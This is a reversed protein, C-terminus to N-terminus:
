HRKTFSLKQPISFRFNAYEKNVFSSPHGSATIKGGNAGAGPGMELIWDSNRLIQVNHEVIIVSHGSNVIEKLAKVLLSIDKMHLGTTPEDILLISPLKNKSLTGM